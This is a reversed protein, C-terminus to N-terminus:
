KAGPSFGTLKRAEVAGDYGRRDTASITVSTFLRLLDWLVFFDRSDLVVAVQQTGKRHYAVLPMKGERKALRRTKELLTVAAPPKTTHKHEVYV